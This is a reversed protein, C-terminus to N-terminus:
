DEQDLAGYLVLRQILDQAMELMALWHGVSDVLERYLGPEKQALLLHDPCYLGVASKDKLLLNTYCPKLVSTFFKDLLETDAQRSFERPLEPDDPCLKQLKTFAMLRWLSFTQQMIPPRSTQLLSPASEVFPSLTDEIVSSIVQASQM